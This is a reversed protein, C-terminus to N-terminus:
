TVRAFTTGDATSRHESVAGEGFLQVTLVWRGDLQQVLHFADEEVQLAAGVTDRFLFEVGPTADGPMKLAGRLNFPASTGVRAAWLIADNYRGMGLTPNAANTLGSANLTWREGDDTSYLLSASTEGSLV